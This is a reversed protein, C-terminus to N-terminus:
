YWGGSQVQKRLALIEDKGKNDISYILIAEYFFM